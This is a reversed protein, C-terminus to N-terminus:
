ASGAPEAPLEDLRAVLGPLARLLKATAHGIGGVLIQVVLLLFVHEGPHPAVLGARRLELLLHSHLPRFFHAREHGARERTARRLRFRLPHLLCTTPEERPPAGNWM